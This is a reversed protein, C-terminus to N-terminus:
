AFTRWAFAGPFCARGLSKDGTFILRFVGGFRMEQLLDAADSAAIDNEDFIYNERGCHAATLIHNRSIRIGSCEPYAYKQSPEAPDAFVAQLSGLAGAFPHNKRSDETLLRINREGVISQTHSHMKENIGTNCAALLMLFGFWFALPITKILFM